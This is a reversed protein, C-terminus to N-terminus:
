ARSRGSIAAVVRIGNGLDGNLQLNLNSNLVLSQSNGVSFGRSLSGSYNLNSSGFLPNDSNDAYPNYDYGIYVAQEKQQLKTTDLFFSPTTFDISLTRYSIQVERNLWSSDKCDLVLDTGLLTHDIYPIIEFTSPEIVMSDLKIMCTDLVISKQVMGGNQSWAINGIM